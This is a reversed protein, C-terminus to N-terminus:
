HKITQDREPGVSIYTVPIGSIEEIREIYQKAQIPLNEWNRVTSIDEQWGPLVEYLPEYMTMKSADLGYPPFAHKEGKVYYFTCVHIDELGSLIDLKTVCLETMGNIATAYRLLVGDLWGVRRPRGTTTGFEDWPNTGTGRLREAQSGSLETPFPGSGVRTQFAKTVGIVKSVSKVGIGLGSFVGHASTSSSTVFPYTGHDLDLLVGQAGEALITEGKALSDRILITIERIYPILAQTRSVYEEVMDKIVLPPRNYLLKLTRSVDEFHVTVKEAFSDIDLIDGTRLGRRAVKDIYAPGIGRMTTGIADKGRAEEQAKDMLRHAPTILHAGPSIFLRGPNIEVGLQQLSVMEDLLALPNIVMGSGLVGLTHPHVIGSPILHLKFTQTGVTVTHGANDGGNYRAVIAADASLMDVIRGKGEDGWQTGVIVNLGM